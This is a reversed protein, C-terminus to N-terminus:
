IKFADESLITRFEVKTRLMTLLGDIVDRKKVIFDREFGKKTDCTNQEISVKVYLLKGFYVMFVVGTQIVLAVFLSSLM